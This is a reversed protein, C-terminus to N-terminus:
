LPSCNPYHFSTPPGERATLNPGHEVFPIAETLQYAHAAPCFLTLRPSLSALLLQSFFAKEAAEDAFSLLVSAHLQDAPANDHAVNPADWLGKKWGMFNQMRLEQLTGTNALAPALEQDIFRHFRVALVGERRRLFILSRAGM